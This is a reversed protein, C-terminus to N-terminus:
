VVTAVAIPHHIYPEGSKRVQEAHARDAVEFARLILSTDAKPHRSRYANLLPGLVGEDPAAQRRWPLVRDVTAM